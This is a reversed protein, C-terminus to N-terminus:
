VMSRTFVKVVTGEGSPAAGMAFGAGVSEFGTSKKATKKTM